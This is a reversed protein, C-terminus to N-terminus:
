ACRRLRPGMVNNGEDHAKHTHHCPNHTTPSRGAGPSAQPHSSTSPAPTLICAHTAISPHSARAGFSWPNWPWALGGQTLRSRLRPRCAYDISSPNINGYRRLVAWASARTSVWAWGGLEAAGVGKPPHHPQPPPTQPGETCTPLRTLLPSACHYGPPGSPKTRELACGTRWAFGSHSGGQSTLTLRSPSGVSTPSLLTIRPHRSFGRRSPAQRGYGLGVCTTPCLIGLRVLSDHNLFEAFHGRLKPLLPAQDRFGRQPSPPLTASALPFRSNVLFM